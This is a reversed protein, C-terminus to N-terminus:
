KWKAIWADINATTNQGTADLVAIEAKETAGLKKLREALNKAFQIFSNKFKNSGVGYVAFSLGSLSVSSSSLKEWFPKVPKPPDGKGYTAVVFVVLKKKALDEPQLTSLDVVPLGVKKGLDNATEESTGNQGGWAIVKDAM